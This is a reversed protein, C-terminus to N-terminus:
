DQKKAKFTVDLSGGVKVSSGNGPFSIETMQPIAPNAGPEYFMLGGEIGIVTNDTGATQATPETVTLDHSWSFAGGGVPYDEFLPNVTQMNGSGVSGPNGPGVLTDQTNAFTMNNNFACNTCGQPEAAYFINNDVALDKVSSFMNSSARNLMVNNKVIVGAASYNSSSYLYYNSFINNHFIVNEFGSGGFYVYSSGLLCNRITDNRYTVNANQFYTYSTMYCREITVGEITKSTGNTGYFSIYGMRFGTIKSNSATFAGSGRLNVSGLISTGGYPNNCGAGILVIERAIEVTGYSIGSGYVMITDGPNAAAIATNIASYQAPAKADNSVTLVAADM